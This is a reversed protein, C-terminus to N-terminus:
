WMIRANKTQPVRVIVFDNESLIKELYVNFHEELIDLHTYGLEARERINNEIAKTSRSECIKRAEKATIM